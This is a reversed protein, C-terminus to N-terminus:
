HVQHSTMAADREEMADNVEIAFESYLKGAISSVDGGNNLANTVQSNPGTVKIVMDYIDDSGDPLPNEEYPNARLILNTDVQIAQLQQRYHFDKNASFTM